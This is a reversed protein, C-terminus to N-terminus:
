APVQTVPAQATPQWSGPAQCHLFRAALTPTSAMLRAPQGARNSHEVGATPPRVSGWAATVVQGNRRTIGNGQIEGATNKEGLSGSGALSGFAQTKARLRAGFRRLSGAHHVWVVLLQSLQDFPMPAPVDRCDLIGLRFGPQRHPHSGLWSRLWIWVQGPFCRRLRIVWGLRLTPRQLGWGLVQFVADVHIFQIATPRDDGSRVQDIGTVVPNRAREVRCTHQQHNEQSDTGTPQKRGCGGAPESHQRHDHRDNEQDAGDQFLHGFVRIIVVGVLRQVFRVMSAARVDQLAVRCLGAPDFGAQVVQVLQIM